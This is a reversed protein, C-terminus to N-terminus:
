ISCCGTIARIPQMCHIKGTWLSNGVPGYLGQPTTLGNLSNWNAATGNVSSQGVAATAPAGALAVFIMSPFVLVRNNGSDAVLIDGQSDAGVDFPLRLDAVGAAPQWRVSAAQGLVM